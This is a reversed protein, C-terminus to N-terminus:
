RLMKKPLKAPRGRLVGIGVRADGGAADAITELQATTIVGEQLGRRVRDELIASLAETSYVDFNIRVATQLRSAVRDDLHALLETERNAILVMTLEPSRYLDYLVSTDTLQDVEDLVVVYPPGDYARLRDCLEDTPTSQRHIDVAQDLGELVRYLTKFRTHDEWCNIYQTHIDIVAERLRELTYQAICTKGTGSPGLLFTTGGADGHTVPDLASILTNIEADRHVVESPIFEPQLVRADVIM